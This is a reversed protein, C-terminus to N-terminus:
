KKRDCGYDQEIFYTSIMAVTNANAKVMLLQGFM